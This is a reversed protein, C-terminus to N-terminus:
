AQGLAEQLWQEATSLTLRRVSAGAAPLYRLLLRYRDYDFTGDAFWRSVGAEDYRLAQQLRWQDFLFLHGRSHDVSCEELVIPGEYPWPKLRHPAWAMAFRANYRAPAEQGACAGCAAAIDALAQQAQLRSRFVGLVEELPIPIEPNWPSLRATQCGRRLPGQRAIILETPMRGRRNLLPKLTKILQAELLLAGLEGHTAHAEIRTLRETLERDKDARLDQAFHALVRGRVDASKGVYLPTDQADYFVYVGPGESLADLDAPKLQAPLIPAQLLQQVAQAIRAAPLSQRAHQLFQWVVAADDLARHRRAVAFDFREILTALSHRRHEPYLLRSLRVTCLCVARYPLGAREFETRVFGYDFRANHAVFVCGALLGHVRRALAAFPPAEEVDADTLGTIQTIMRPIRCGPHVLSSFTDVLRGQEIRHIGIEIVRDFAASSGTTEVDVIALSLQDLM